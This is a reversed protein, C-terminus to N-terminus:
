KKMAEEISKKLIREITEYGGRNPNIRIMTTEYKPNAKLFTGSVRYFMPVIEYKSEAGVPHPSAGMKEAHELVKKAIDSKFEVLIVKSQANALFVKKIEKIGSTELRRILKENVESQISHAVPAYVLGRLVELAEYGQVKSGGSYNKNNITKIIDNDGVIVGIGEPGLLKFSSFTSVNAKLEVGIKDVKMVAYNDDVIIPIEKNLKKIMKIVEEIDYKDDIKQRSYQVLACKINKNKRITNEIDELNNFDCYAYKLGLMECSDKTTPYIPADHILITDGTNCTALLSNRIASTGSGRVLICAEADFFDAITREVKHTYMPKNYKKNIGLDGQSLIEYGEFEKTICDVLKFQKEKAEEIHISKLPYTKM